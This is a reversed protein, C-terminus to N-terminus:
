DPLMNGPIVAQTRNNFYSFSPHVINDTLKNFTLYISFLTSEFPVDLIIQNAKNKLSGIKGSVLHQKLAKPLDSKISKLEEEWKLAAKLHKVRDEDIKKGDFM